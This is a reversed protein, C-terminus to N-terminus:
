ELTNIPNQSLYEALYYSDVIDSIPSGVKKAKVNFVNRLNVGTKKAFWEYMIQKDSNGKTTAYKKLSTPPLTGWVRNTSWLSYKLMMCCEAIHFVRGKAGMAYDEILVQDCNRLINIAWNSISVFREVQNNPKIFLSGEINGFKGVFKKTDTLYHVQCTEFRFDDTDGVCISPCVMSYDVGAIIMDCTNIFFLFGSTKM